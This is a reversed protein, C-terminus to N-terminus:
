VPAAGPAPSAAGPRLWGEIGGEIATKTAEDAFSARVGTLALDALGRDSLGFVSRAVEYEGALPSAFMAPDDSGLTVALGAELLRPLPHAEIRPVVRTMVNSTPCVELAVRRERVEAVLEADELIRIGHGIREAGLVVLASRVSRAGASEGAHAVTHLGGSSAEAFIATYLEPVFRESGGLGVAVVGRDRHAVAVAAARESLGIDLGRVVDVIVGCRVGFAASGQALGELVAELPAEWDGVRPGHEPLSFSPEAYRVGQAAEDECFERAIRRYDEPRELCHLCAVWQEIFHPFDRFTYRGDQLGSPLPVHNREALEALTAPRISGELHVHLDVKPLEVLSRGESV